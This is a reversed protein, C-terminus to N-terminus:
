RFRLFRELTGEWDMSWVLRTFKAISKQWQINQADEDVQASPTLSSRSVLPHPELTLSSRSVLPHPELCFM